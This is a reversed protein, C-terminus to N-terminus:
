WPLGNMDIPGDPWAVGGLLLVMPTDPSRHIQDDLQTCLLPQDVVEWGMAAYFSIMSPECQLTLFPVDVEARVFAEIAEVL